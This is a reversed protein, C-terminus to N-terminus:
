NQTTNPPIFRDVAALVSSRLALVVGLGAVFGTVKLSLPAPLLVAPIGYGIAYTCVMVTPMMSSTDSM